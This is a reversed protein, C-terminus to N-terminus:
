KFNHLNVYLERKKKAKKMLQDDAYNKCKKEM